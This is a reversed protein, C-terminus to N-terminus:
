RTSTSRGDKPACRRSSSSAGAPRTSPPAAGPSGRRWRAGPSRWRAAAGARMANVFTPDDGSLLAFAARQELEPVLRGAQKGVAPDGDQGPAGVQHRLAVRALHLELGHQHVDPAHGFQLADAHLLVRHADTRKAGDKVMAMLADIQANSVLQGQNDAQSVVKTFADLM